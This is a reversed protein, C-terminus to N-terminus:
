KLTMTPALVLWPPLLLLTLTPSLRVLRSMLEPEPEPELATWPAHVQSHPRPM